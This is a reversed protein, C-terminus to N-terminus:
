TNSGTTRQVPSSGKVELDMTM